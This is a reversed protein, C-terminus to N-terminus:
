IGVPTLATRIGVIKGQADRLHREVLALTVPTGDARLFTRVFPRLEEGSLKKGAARASVENLVVFRNCPQGLVEELRYGLLALEGPNVRTVTRAHDIEHLGIDKPAEDFLRDYAGRGARLAAELKEQCADLRAFAETKTLTTTQIM